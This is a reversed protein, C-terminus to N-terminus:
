EGEVNEDGTYYIIVETRPRDSYRKSASLYHIQADDAWAVGNLGDTIAKLVNDLDPKTTKQVEGSLAQMTKKRSWSAPVRFYSHVVLGIPLDLPVHNPYQESFSVRVLNEFRTTAEPTYAHGSRTFRPRGKSVPDGPVIFELKKTVLM